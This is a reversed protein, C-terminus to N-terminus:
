ADTQHVPAPKPRPAGSALLIKVSGLHLQMQKIFWIALGLMVLLAVLVLCSFITSLILLVEM